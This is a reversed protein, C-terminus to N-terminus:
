KKYNIIEYIQTKELDFFWIKGDRKTENFYRLLIELIVCLGLKYIGNYTIKSIKAGNKEIFCEM